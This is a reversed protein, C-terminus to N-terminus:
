PCKVAPKPHTESYAPTCRNEGPKKDLDDHIIRRVTRSSGNIMEAMTEQSLICDKNTLKDAKKIASETHKTNAFNFKFEQNEQNCQRKM